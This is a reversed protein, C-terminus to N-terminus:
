GTLARILAAAGENLRKPDQHVREM